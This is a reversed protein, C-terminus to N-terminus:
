SYNKPNYAIRVRKEDASVLVQCNEVIRHLLRLGRVRKDSAPRPIEWRRITLFAALAGTSAPASTDIAMPEPEWSAAALASKINSDLLILVM